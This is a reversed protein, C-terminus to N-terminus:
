STWGSTRGGEGLDKLLGVLRALSPVECDAEIHLNRNQDNRVLCSKFGGARAARVGKEADEVVLSCAPDAGLREAAALFIAPDPKHPLGEGGVVTPVPAESKELIVTVLDSSTNSAIAFGSIGAVGRSLLRLLSPARPFLQVAGERCLRSYIRRQTQRLQRRERTDIPLRHRRIEGELGEGRNTWYLWYEGEPVQHDYASLAQNWSKRYLPESDALVGDFDLLVHDVGRIVRILRNILFRGQSAITFRGPPGPLIEPRPVYYCVPLVDPHRELNPGARVSPPM